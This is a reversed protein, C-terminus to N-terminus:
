ATKDLARIREVTKTHVRGEVGRAEGGRGEGGIDEINDVLSFASPWM